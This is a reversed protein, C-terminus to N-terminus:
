REPEVLTPCHKNAFFVNLFYKKKHIVEPCLCVYGEVADKCKNSDHFTFFPLNLKQGFHDKGVKCWYFSLCSGVYDFDTIIGTVMYLWM